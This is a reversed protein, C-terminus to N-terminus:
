ASRSRPARAARRAERAALWTAFGKGSMPRAIGYGQIHGCGLDVLRDHEGTREVGEAITDLGLRDALCLIGAVMRHQGADRDLDAVISRDIKLRRIPLLRLTSIPASGTGFDDLEISCGLDALARVNRAVESDRHRALVSELVEIGIREPTLGYRDLDWRLRPVLKPDALEEAGFNVSIRPVSLGQRDWGSLAAMAASLMAGGLKGARGSQALADLFQAPPVIGREPHNWRALVEVGSLAGTATVVQPQFWPLIEGTELARAVRRALARRTEAEEALAPTWLRIQSAGDRLAADLAVEARDLLPEARTEPGEGCAIGLAATPYYRLGALVLPDELRARLRAALEEAGDPPLAASLALRSDGLTAIVDTDRVVEALRDLCIARAQRLAAGGQQAAIRDLGGLAALVFVPRSGPPGRWAAPAARLFAGHGGDRPLADPAPGRPLVRLGPLAFALALAMPPWAWVPGLAPLAALGALGLLLPPLVAPSQELM